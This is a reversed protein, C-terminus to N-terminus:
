RPGPVASRVPQHADSTPSLPEPGRDLFRHEGDHLAPTRAIEVPDSIEPEAANVLVEVREVLELLLDRRGDSRPRCYGISPPHSIRNV